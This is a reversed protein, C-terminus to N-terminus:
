RVIGAIVGVGLVYVWGATFDNLHSNFLSSVINQTVVMLGFWSVHSSGFFFRWHAVWMAILVAVGVLGLQMGIAFIQNHPNVATDSGQRRFSEAISGTGHGILPAERMTRLAMRWFVIRDWASTDETPDDPAHLEETLHTVRYRLYPSSAWILAAATAAFAILSILQKRSLRLFGLLVLLIPIV